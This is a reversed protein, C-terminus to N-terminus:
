KCPLAIFHGHHQDYVGLGLFTKMVEHAFVKFKLLKFFMSIPLIVSVNEHSHQHDCAAIRFRFLSEWVCRSCKAVPRSRNMVFRSTSHMCKAIWVHKRGVHQTRAWFSGGLVRAFM